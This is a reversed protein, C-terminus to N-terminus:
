AQQGEARVLTQFPHLRAKAALYASQAEEESAFYGVHVAKGGTVVVAKWPKKLNQRNSRWVGLRGSRSNSQAVRRNQMNESRTAERLNDLRNNSPNGDRHDIDGIPWRGHTLAWAVRHVMLGQQDLKVSVYGNSLCGAVDGPCAPGRRGIKWVLMGSQPDYEFAERLRDISIFQEAM